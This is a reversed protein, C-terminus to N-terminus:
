SLIAGMVQVVKDAARAGLTASEEINKGASLGYLFGGAFADGAGTKDRVIVSADAQVFCEGGSWVVRAGKAGLKYVVIEALGTLDGFADAEQENAFVIDVYREILNKMYDRNEEVVNFSAMDFAVKLAYKKAIELTRELYPKNFVMYGEIFLFDYKAFVKEDLMEPQVDSCAGYYTAMTREADASVMSIVAGSSEKVSKKLIPEITRAKLQTEFNDGIEDKGVCGIFGTKGGYHAAVAVCNAASGGTVVVPNLSNILKLIQAQKQQDVYNMSGRLFGLQDLVDDSKLDVLVDTLAAGIALIKKM